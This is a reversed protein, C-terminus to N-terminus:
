SIKINLGDLFCLIIRQKLSVKMKRLWKKHKHSKIGTTTIHFIGIFHWFPQHMM